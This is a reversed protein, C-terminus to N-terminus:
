KFSGGGPRCANACRLRWSFVFIDAKSGFASMHPAVLSTRKTGIASEMAERGHRRYYPRAKAAKLNIVMEYKTPREPWAQETQRTDNLRVCDQPPMSGPKQGRRHNVIAM